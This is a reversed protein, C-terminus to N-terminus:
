EEYNGEVLNYYENIVKTDFPIWKVQVIITGDDEGCLNAYFEHVIPAVAVEPHKCLM